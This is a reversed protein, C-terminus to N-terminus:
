DIPRDTQWDTWRNAQGSTRRDNQRETWRGTKGKRRRVTHTWRDNQRDTLRKTEILKHWNQWGERRRPPQVAHETKNKASFSQVNVHVSFYKHNCNKPLRLHCYYYNRIRRQIHCDFHWLFQLYFSKKQYTKNRKM